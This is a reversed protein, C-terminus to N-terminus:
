HCGCDTDGCTNKSTTTKPKWIFKRILFLLAIGLTTFVLINQILDNM